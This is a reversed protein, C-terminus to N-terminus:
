FSDYWLRFKDTGLPELDTWGIPWGMMWEWYTPGTPRGGTAERLRRHAAWKQMSPSDTNAKRTLTPLWGSGSEASRPVWAPPPFEPVDLWTASGLFITQQRRYLSVKSTKQWSTFLLYKVSSESCKRGCTKLSLGEGAPAQSRSVRFGEPLSTSREGGPGGTSLASTMGSLSARYAAMWRADFYCRGVSPTSKLPACPESGVSSEVSFEAELEPLFHWSM